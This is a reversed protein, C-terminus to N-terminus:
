YTKDRSIDWTDLLEQISFVNGDNIISSVKAIGKESVQQLVAAPTTTNVGADRLASDIIALLSNDKDFGHVQWKTKGKESREIKLTALDTDRFELAFCFKYAHTEEKFDFLEQITNLRSQAGASISLTDREWKM